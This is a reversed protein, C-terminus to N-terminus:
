LVPVVLVIHEDRKTVVHIWACRSDVHEICAEDVAVVSGDIELAADAMMGVEMDGSAKLTAYHGTSIDRLEFDLGAGSSVLIGVDGYTLTLAESEIRPTADELEPSFDYDVDADEGEEPTSTETDTPRLGKGPSDDDHSCSVFVLFVCLICVLRKM